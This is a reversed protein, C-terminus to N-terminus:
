QTVTVSTTAQKSGLGADEVTATVTYVGSATYAHRLEGEATRSGRLDVEATANDGYELLLGLLQGGQATFEFIIEQTAGATSPVAQITIALPLPELEDITCSATGVLLLALTGNWIRM